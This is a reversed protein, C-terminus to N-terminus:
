VVLFAVYIQKLSRDRNMKDCNSLFEPVVIVYGFDHQQLMKQLQSLERLCGAPQINQLAPVYFYLSQWITLSQPERVPIGCCGLNDNVISLLAV